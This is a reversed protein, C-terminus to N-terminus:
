GAISFGGDVPLTQGTIYAAASSSLFLVPGAIDLPQGFRGLPTRALSPATAQEHALFGATMNSHILGAAVANVRINDKAWAMSLTKTLQVLAAKAAGYGPVVEVGFYSTMSALGIVAGGGPLNSAALKGHCARALRYASLLNVQISKEFVEPQYEDELMFNGGANNVLIDLAPLAAALADISHNDTLQLPLYRYGSFDQEYDGADPRTGTITVEAGAERYAAAIGAGIGNSGGTVLVRAGRYDFRCDPWQTSDNM